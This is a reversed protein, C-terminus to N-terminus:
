TGSSGFGGENRETVDLVKAEQWDVTEHKHFVGQAIRMGPTVMFADKGMNILLVQILGRYDSDIIGPGNLTTIGQRMALGSRPAIQMYMGHTMALRLGTSILGFEGSRIIQTEVSYLDYGAAQASQRTPIKANPHAKQFQVELPQTDILETEEQEYYEKMYRDAATDADPDIPLM